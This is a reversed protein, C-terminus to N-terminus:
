QQKRQKGLKELYKGYWDAYSNDRVESRLGRQKINAKELVCSRVMGLSVLITICVIILQITGEWSKLNKIPKKM